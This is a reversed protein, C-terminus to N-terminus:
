RETGITGQDLSLVDDGATLDTPPTLLCRWVGSGSISEQRFVTECQRFVALVEAKDLGTTAIVEDMTMRGDGSERWFAMLVKAAHSEASV